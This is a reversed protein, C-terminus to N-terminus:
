RKPGKTQELARTLQSQRFQRGMKSRWGEAVPAAPPPTTQVLGPIKLGDAQVRALTDALLDADSLGVFKGCGENFCDRMIAICQPRTLIPTPAVQPYQSQLIGLAVPSLAPQAPPAARAPAPSMRSVLTQLEKLRRSAAKIGLIMESAPLGLQGELAIIKAHYERATEIRTKM